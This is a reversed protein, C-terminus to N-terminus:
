LTPGAVCMVTIVRSPLGRIATWLGGRGLGAHAVLDLEVRELGALPDGGAVRELEIGVSVLLASSNWTLWQASPM